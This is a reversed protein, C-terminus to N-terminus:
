TQHNENILSLFEQVVEPDFLIGSQERIYQLTEETSLAKRYPRDSCLADWVDVVAFIRAEQPIEKGQLGLPYGSGDWREHHQYPIVMAPTLYEIPSILMQAYIPHKHMVVWEREDLPGPKFLIEDPVGMKGIDHLIAGRKFNELREGDIGMRQALKVSISVVRQTHGETERDRLDLARSWGRLTEEYAKSLEENANKLNELLGSHNIAIAAQGALTELFDEWTKDHQPADDFVELVGKLDGDAILPVAYYTNVDGGIIQASCGPNIEDINEFYLTRKEQAAQKACKNEQDKFPYEGLFGLNANVKLSDTNPDYLLIAAAEVELLRSISELVIYLTANLNAETNITKDIARLAKLRELQRSVQLRHQKEQDSLFSTILAVGNFFIIQFMIREVFITNVTGINHIILTGSVLSAILAVLLGGIRGFYFSAILIPVIQSFAFMEHLDDSSAPLFLTGLAAVGIWVFIILLTIIKSVKQKGRKM